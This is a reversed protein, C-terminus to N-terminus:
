SSFLKTSSFLIGTDELRRMIVKPTSTLYKTAILVKSILPASFGGVLSIYYLSLVITPLYVFFLKQGLKVQEWDLWDPM